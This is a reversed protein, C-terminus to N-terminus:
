TIISRRELGVENLQEVARHKSHGPQRGPQRAGQLFGKGGVPEAVKGNVPAPHAFELLGHQALRRLNQGPLNPRVGPDGFLNTVGPRHASHASSQCPVRHRHDHWAVPHHAVVAM